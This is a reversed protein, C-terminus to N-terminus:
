KKKNKKKIDEFVPLLGEHGVLNLSDGMFEYAGPGIDMAADFAAMDMPTPPQYFLTLRTDATNILFPEFNVPISYRGLLTNNAQSNAFSDASPWVISGNFYVLGPPRLPSPFSSPLLLINSLSPVTGILKGSVGGVANGIDLVLFGNNLTINLQDGTATITGNPASLFTDDNTVLHPGAGIAFISGNDSTIDTGAGTSEATGTFNINGSTVKITIEGTATINHTLNLTNVTNITLNLLPNLGGVVGDLITTGTDNITLGFNGDITNNFTINEGTLTTDAGLTVPSNYIQSGTTTVAGGNIEAALANTTLSS